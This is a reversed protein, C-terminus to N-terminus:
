RHQEKRAYVWWGRCNLRQPADCQVFTFNAAPDGKDTDPFDSVIQTMVGADFDEQVQEDIPGDVYVWVQIQETSWDVSIARM